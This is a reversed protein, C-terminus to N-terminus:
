AVANRQLTCLLLWVWVGRTKLGSTALTSCEYKGYSTGTSQTNTYPTTHNDHQAAQALATGITDRGHPKLRNFPHV